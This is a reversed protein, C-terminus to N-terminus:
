QTPDVEAPAAEPDHVADADPVVAPQLDVLDVRRAVLTVTLTEYPRNATAPAISPAPDSALYHGLPEDDIFVQLMGGAARGLVIHPLQDLTLDHAHESQEPTPSDSM